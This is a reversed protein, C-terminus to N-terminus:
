EERKMEVFQQPVNEKQQQMNSLKRKAEPVTPFGESLQELNGKKVRGIFIAKQEKERKEVEFLQLKEEYRKVAQDSEMGYVSLFGESFSTGAFSVEALMRGRKGQFITGDVQEVKEADQFNGQQLFYQCLILPKVELQTEVEEQIREQRDAPIPQGDIEGGRM